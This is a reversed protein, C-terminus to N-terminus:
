KIWDLWNRITIKRVKLLSHSSNGNGSNWIDNSKTTFNGSYKSNNTEHTNNNSNYSNNTNNTNNLYSSNSNSFHSNNNNNNNNNNSDHLAQFSSLSGSSHAKVGSLLTNHPTNSAGFKFLESPFEGRDKVGDLWLLFHEFFSFFTFFIFDSIQLFCDFM